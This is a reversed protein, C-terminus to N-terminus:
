AFNKLLGGIASELGNADPMKGEPTLQNVLTPLLGALMSSAQDPNIGAKAAFENLTGSGLVSSVQSPSVPPNPGTSIWSAMMDGLGQQQFAQVLGGLGGGGGVSTDKASLLSMAASLLKPNSALTTAISGMGSGGEGGLQGLIGDLLGM